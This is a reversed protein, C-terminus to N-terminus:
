ELSRQALENGVVVQDIPGKSSSRMEYRAGAILLMERLVDVDEIEREARLIHRRQTPQILAFFGGAVRVIRGVPVSAWPPPDTAGAAVSM